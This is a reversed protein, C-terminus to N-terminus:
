RRQLLQSYSPYKGKYASGGLSLPIIHDITPGLKEKPSLTLDIEDGCISCRSGDREYIERFFVATSFINNEYIQRKKASSTARQARIRDIVEPRKRYERGRIRDKEKKEERHEEKYKRACQRIHEMYEPNVRLRQYRQRAVNAQRAKRCQESCTRRSKYSALFDMGCIECKKQTVKKHKRM